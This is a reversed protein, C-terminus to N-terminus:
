ACDKGLAPGTLDSCAIFSTTRLQAIVPASTLFSILDAALGSPAGTTYLHETALFTYAGSLANARSPAIGGIPIAAVNPFFPLADAEAYGIADQTGNVYNLVGLTSDETCVQGTAQGPPQCPSAGQEAQDASSLVNLVFAARTGSAGSRGVPHYTFNGSSPTDFATAIQAATLGGGTGSAFDHPPLSLRNGVVAFIIVGVPMSTVPAPPQQDPQGDYMAIVTTGSPPHELDALGQASGVPRVTVQAQPCVQMYENAVQTIVPAFATSGDVELKGPACTAAPALARNALGIGGVFSVVVGIMVVAAAPILWRRPFRRTTTGEAFSGDAISGLIEPKPYSAPAHGGPSRLLVLLKFSKDPDLQLAPLRFSEEAGPTIPPRAQVQEHYLDNDRVKFNMVQRGPFRVVFERREGFDAERITQRGANRMEMVVLSGNEVEHLVAGQDRSQFSIEWPTSSAAGEANIPEDYLVTWSMRKDPRGLRQATGTYVITAVGSVLAAFLGNKNLWGYLGSVLAQFTDALHM